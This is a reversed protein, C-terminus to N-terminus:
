AKKLGAFGSKINHQELLVEILHSQYSQDREIARDWFTDQTWGCACTRTVVTSWDTHVPRDTYTHVVAKDPVHDRMRKM